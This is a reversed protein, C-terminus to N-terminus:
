CPPAFPSPCRPLHDAGPETETWRGPVRWEITPLQTEVREGSPLRERRTLDLEVRVASMTTRIHKPVEHDHCFLAERASDLGHAGNVPEFNMFFTPQFEGLSKDPRGWDSDFLAGYYVSELPRRESINVTSRVRGNTPDVCGYDRRFRADARAFGWYGVNPEGTEDSYDFGVNLNLYLMAGGCGPTPNYEHYRLGCWMPVPEPGSLAPVEEPVPAYPYDAVATMAWVDIVEGRRSASASAAPILLALVVAAVALRGGARM